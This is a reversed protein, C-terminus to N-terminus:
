SQFQRLAALRDTEASGQTRIKRAKRTEPHLEREDVEDVPTALKVGTSRVVKVVTLLMIKIDLWLSWNDVYWIDLKLRESFLLMNRGNIQAWGTIGRPLTHRRNQEPTYHPLYEMLLPRPGLLSMEGRVVNGHTSRIQRHMEALDFGALLYGPFMADTVRVLGQRTSRKFRIRPWFVSVSQLKRLHAAAIHEHKPQARLCYWPRKEAARETAAASSGNSSVVGDARNELRSVMIGNEIYSIVLLNSGNLGRGHSRDKTTQCDWLRRCM